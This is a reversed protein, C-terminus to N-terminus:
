RGGGDGHWRGLEGSVLLLVVGGEEGEEVDERFWAVGYRSAVSVTTKRRGRDGEEEEDGAVAGGGGGRRWPRRPSCLRREQEQM